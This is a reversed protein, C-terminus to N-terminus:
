YTIILLYLTYAPIYSVSESYSNTSVPQSSFGLEIAMNVNILWAYCSYNPESTDVTYNGLIGALYSAYDDFDQQDAGTYSLLFTTGSSYDSYDPNLNLGAIEQPSELSSPVGNSLLATNVTQPFGGPDEDKQPAKGQSDEDKPYLVCGSFFLCFGLAAAGMVATLHKIKM